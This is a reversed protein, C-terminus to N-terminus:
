IEERLEVTESDARGGRVTVTKSGDSLMIAPTQLGTVTIEVTEHESDPLRQNFIDDLEFDKMEAATNASEKTDKEIEQANKSEDLDTNLADNKEYCKSLISQVKCWSRLVNIIEHLRNFDEIQIKLVKVMRCGVFYNINHDSSNPRKFDTKLNADNEVNDMWKAKEETLEEWNKSCWNAVDLPVLVPPVLEAIIATNNRRISHFIKWTGSEVSYIRTMENGMIDVTDNNKENETNNTNTNALDNSNSSTTNHENNDDNDDGNNNNIMEQVKFHLRNVKPYIEVNKKNKRIWNNVYRDDEWYELFVGVKNDANVLIKGLGMTSESDFNKLVNDISNSFNTESLIKKNEQLTGWVIESFLTFLDDPKNSSLRDFQILIRLNMNFSDLTKEHLNNLLIESVKSGNKVGFLFDYNENEILEVNVASSVSVDIVEDTENKFDVDILLIQGSISIRIFNADNRKEIFTTFGYTESLRKVSNLSVKGPRKLLTESIKTLPKVLEVDNNMM